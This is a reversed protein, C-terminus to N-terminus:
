QEQSRALTWLLPIELGQRSELCEPLSSHEASSSRAALSCPFCNALPKLRQGGTDVISGDGCIDLGTIKYSGSTCLGIGGEPWSHVNRSVPQENPKM